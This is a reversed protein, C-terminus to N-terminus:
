STMDGHLSVPVNVVAAADSVGVGVGVGLIVGVLVTVGVGVDVCDVMDVGVIVVVAGDAAYAKACAYGIGDSGGTLFIIKGKLQQM